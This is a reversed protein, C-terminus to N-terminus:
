MWGPQNGLAMQLPRPELAFIICLMEPQPTECHIENASEVVQIVKSIKSKSWRSVIQCTKKNAGRPDGVATGCEAPRAMWKLLWLPKANSAAHDHRSARLAEEPNELQVASYQEMFHRSSVHYVLANSSMNKMKHLNPSFPCCASSTNTTQKHKRFSNAGWSPWDCLWLHKDDFQHGAVLAGIHTQRMTASHGKLNVAGEKGAERRFVRSYFYIIISISLFLRIALCINVLSMAAFLFICVLLSRFICAHTM